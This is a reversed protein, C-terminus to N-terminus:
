ECKWDHELLKMSNKLNDSDRDFRKTARTWAAQYLAKTYVAGTHIPQGSAFGQAGFIWNHITALHSDVSTVTSPSPKLPKEVAMWSAAVTATIEAEVDRFRALLGAPHLNQEHLFNDFKAAFDVRDHLHQYLYPFLTSESPYSTSLTKSPKYSQAPSSKEFDLIFENMKEEDLQLSSYKKPPHFATKKGASAFTDKSGIKFHKRFETFHLVHAHAAAFAPHASPM